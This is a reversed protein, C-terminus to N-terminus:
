KGVARLIEAAIARLSDEAALQAAALTPGTM